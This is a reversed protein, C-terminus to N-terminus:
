WDDDDRLPEVRPWARQMTRRYAAAGIAVGVALGAAVVGVLLWGAPRWGAIAAVAGALILANTAHLWSRWWRGLRAEADTAAM